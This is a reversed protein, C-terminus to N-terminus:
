HISEYSSVVHQDRRNKCRRGKRGAHLHVARERTGVLLPRRRVGGGTNGRRKRPLQVAPLECEFIKEGDEPQASRHEREHGKGGSAAAEGENGGAAGDSEGRAKFTEM